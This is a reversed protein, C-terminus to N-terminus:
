NPHAIQYTLRKGAVDLLAVNARQEGTHENKTRFDYEALYRHLNDKKSHQYVGRM